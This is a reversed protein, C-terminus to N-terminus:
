SKEALSVGASIPRPAARGRYPPYFIFLLSLIGTVLTVGLGTVFSAPMYWLEVQRDGPAVRVALRGDFNEVAQGVAGRVHWGSYYNQNLVLYGEGAPAVRVVVRNPTWGTFVASGTTHSLYAEGRYDGATIPAAGRPVEATEYGNITGLNALFSPYLAGYSSHIGYPNYRVLPNAEAEAPTVWGNQDYAPMEWIQYFTESKSVALPPVPFADRFIRANVAWLDALVLLLVAATFFRAYAPQGLRRKLSDIVWQFGFGALLALCLMFVIRFRQAIRMSDYVPLLHLWSWLELRPRNGLSIWLFVLSCAFLLLGRKDRLRALGILFLVFPLLGIYMGNEDMAGTMGYLFGAQELPLQVVADLSQERGLLSTALSSLSFGSYDYLRRPHQRLFEIAPFFKVAGLCLTFVFIIALLRLMQGPNQERLLVLFAGYVVFFLLTISLPYAGGGFFILVLFLSSLLGYRWNALAKQYFLFAWPLYAVSLFWTMGVTLNLAYMSNLMFVFASLLAAARSLRYFRALVYVGALGIVLHLWIELKIGVVEGFLLILGFSPALVRSQPNALLVTGGVYYPNWLPIQGYELLTVRPVAHYFLHQDWDQIGWNQIEHFIPLTFFFAVAAFVLLYPFFSTRFKTLRRM